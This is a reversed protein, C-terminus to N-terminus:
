KLEQGTKGFVVVFRPEILVSVIVLGRDESRDFSEDGFEARDEMHEVLVNFRLCANHTGDTPYAVIHPEM